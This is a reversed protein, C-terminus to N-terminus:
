KKHMLNYGYSSIFIVGGTTGTDCLNEKKVGVHLFTQAMHKYQLGDLLPNFYKMVAIM